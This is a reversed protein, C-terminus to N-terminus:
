ESEDPNAVVSMVWQTVEDIVAPGHARDWILGHEAGTVIRLSKDRSGLLLLLLRSGLPSLLRDRSGHWIRVSGRVQHACILVGRLGAHLVAGVYTRDATLRTFPDARRAALFTQDSCVSELRWTDLRLRRGLLLAVLEWVSRPSILQRLRPLVGPALLALPTDGLEGGLSLVFDAGASEAVVVPTIARDKRCIELAHRLASMANAYSFDRPDSNPGHGPLNLAACRAGALALSACLADYPVAHIGWGHVVLVVVRPASVPQWLRLRLGDVERDVGEIVLRRELDRQDDLPQM